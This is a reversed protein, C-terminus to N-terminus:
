CRELIHSLTAYDGAVALIAGEGTVEAAVGGEYGSTLLPTGELDVGLPIHVDIYRAGLVAACSSAEGVKLTVADAEATESFKKVEPVAVVCLKTTSARRSTRYTHPRLRLYPAYGPLLHDFRTRPTTVM